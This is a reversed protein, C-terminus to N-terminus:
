VLSVKACDIYIAASQQGCVYVTGTMNLTRSGGDGCEDYKRIPKIDFTEFVFNV